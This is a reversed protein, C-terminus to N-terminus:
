SSRAEVWDWREGCLDRYEDPAVTTLGLDGGQPARFELPGVAYPHVASGPYLGGMSYEVELNHEGATIPVIALQEM